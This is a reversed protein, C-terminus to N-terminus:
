GALRLSDIYYEGLIEKVTILELQLFKDTKSFTQILFRFENEEILDKKQIEYDGIDEFLLFDGQEKDLAARETLYRQTKGEESNIRTNLFLRLTDEAKQEQIEQNQKAIKQELEPIRKQELRNYQWGLLAEGLLLLAFSFLIAKLAGKKFIKNKEQEM